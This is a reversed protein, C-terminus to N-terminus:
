IQLWEGPILDKTDHTPSLKPGFWNSPAIVIKDKYDNLWAGWWSFSSNAIIHAGCMKMRSIDRVPDKETSFEFEKGVFKSKCWNIDDSFILFKKYGTLSMAKEYYKMDLINYCGEHILYDGRRVHISCVDDRFRYKYQSQFSDRIKDGFDKFYKESQFYGHINLNEKYPIPSYHFHPEEYQPGNNSRFVFHYKPINFDKSYIWKPFQFGDKNRWALAMTTAAQFMANGMRGYSGLKIFTITM